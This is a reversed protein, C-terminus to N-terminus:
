GFTLAVLPFDDALPAGGGAKRVAEYVLEPRAPGPPGLRALLAALHELTWDPGGQPAIEFAGDSSLWLRAGPPLAIEGAPWRGTEMMGIAPGRGALMRPGAEGPLHLLGAHHGASAFRLRRTATEYAFYWLTLLLGNHAEMPLLANLGACVAEPDRFDVGPLARRRLANAAAAAHMASGVGHGSVDLVFGSFWEADLAQYGFADGGLRASPVFHWAAHIPGEALPPPLLARVYEAARHLEADLEAAEALEARARREYRLAFAGLQITAGEALRTPGAIAMGGVRTGNTSGLDSLVADDDALLIRCHRRSIDPLPIVLDAPAQRGIVLGAPGIAAQRTAGDLAYILVHERPAAEAAPPPVRLTMTRETFDEDQAM